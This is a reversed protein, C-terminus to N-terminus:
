KITRAPNGAVTSNSSVNKTVVAGAGIIAKSGIKIGPLIIAGAGIFAFDEVVVEGALRAGPAIHVGNGIRCCHDVSAATNIICAKGITANTCIASLALIQSGEGLVSDSVVFATKHIITAALMGNKVLWEQIALRDEGRSGGIATAAVINSDSSLGNKWLDFGDKGIYIPVEAFPSEIENNDFCAILNFDSGSIAERLVRAQGTGGWFIIDAM